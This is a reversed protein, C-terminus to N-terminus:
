RATQKPLSMPKVSGCDSGKYVSTSDTTWEIPLAEEGSKMKGVFHVKSKSENSGIWSSEVSGKGKIKGNCVMDATTNSDKMVVNVIQCDNSSLPMSVGYKDIMAQTLCVQTTTTTPDFPSKMGGPLTKGPTLPSKQWTM